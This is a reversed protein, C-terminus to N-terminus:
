IRDEQMQKMFEMMNSSMATMAQMLITLSAVQGDDRTAADQQGHLAQGLSKPNLHQHLM